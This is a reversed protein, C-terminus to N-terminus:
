RPNTSPVATNMGGKLQVILVHSTYSDEKEEADKFDIGEYLTNLEEKYSDFEELAQRYSEETNKEEGSEAALSVIAADNWLFSFSLLLALMRTPIKRKRQKHIRKNM